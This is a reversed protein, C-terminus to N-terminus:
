DNEYELEFNNANCLIQLIVNKCTELQSKEIGKTVANFWVQVALNSREIVDVGQTTLNIAGLREQSQYTILGKEILKATIRHIHAKDCLLKRSLEIQTIGKYEHLVRLFIIEASKLNLDKFYHNLYKQFQKKINTLSNEILKEM